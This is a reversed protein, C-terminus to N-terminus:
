SRDQGDQDELHARVLTDAIFSVDSASPGAVKVSYTQQGGGELEYSGDVEVEYESEEEHHITRDIIIVSLDVQPNETPEDDKAEDASKDDTVVPSREYISIIDLMVSGIAIVILMVGVYVIAAVDGNHFPQHSFHTNNANGEYIGIGLTVVGATGLLIAQLFNTLSPRKNDPTEAVLYIAAALLTVAVLALIVINFAHFPTHDLRNFEQYNEFQWIAARGIFFVAVLLGVALVAKLVKM